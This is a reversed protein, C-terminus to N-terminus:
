DITTNPVDIIKSLKNRVCIAVGGSKNCNSIAYLHTVGAGIAYNRDARYLSYNDFGLECDNINNNLWTETL